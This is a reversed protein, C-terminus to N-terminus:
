PENTSDIVSYIRLILLFDGVPLVCSFTVDCKRTEESAFGKGREFRSFPLPHFHSVFINRLVSYIKSTAMPGMSSPAPAPTEDFIRHLMKTHVVPLRNQSKKACSGDRLKSKKKVNEAVSRALFFAVM